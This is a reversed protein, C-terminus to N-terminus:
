SRAARVLLLSELIEEERDSARSSPRFGVDPCSDPFPLGRSSSAEAVRTWVDAPKTCLENYDIRVVREPEMGALQSDMDDNTWAVQGCVQQLPPLDRLQEWGPPQVSFWTSEDAATRRAYLLSEVNSVEDRRTVLFVAKPLMEAIEVLNYQLIIGKMVLAAGLAREIAALGRRFGASDAEAWEEPTLRSPLGVPFYQRWFYFFEHPSLLGDTKGILSRFEYDGPAVVRLEDRYALAPDTLLRQVLAGLYPAGYFRALLNTPAALVSAKDLLQLLMTTGSRPPGVILFTPKAPGDPLDVALSAEGKRMAQNFFALFEEAEPPKAFETM